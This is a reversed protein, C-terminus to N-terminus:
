FAPRYHLRRYDGRCLSIVITYRCKVAYTQLQRHISQVDFAAIECLNFRAISRELANSLTIFGDHRIQVQHRYNLDANLQTYHLPMQKRTPMQSRCKVRNHTNRLQCTHTYTHTHSPPASLYCCRRTGADTQGRGGRRM